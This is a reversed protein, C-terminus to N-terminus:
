ASETKADDKLIEDRREQMETTPDDGDFDIMDGSKLWENLYGMANFLLGCVAAIGANNMEPTRNDSQHYGLWELYHRFSSEVYSEMPFGKKWNDADRINGDSQLRNMNMYKAYQKLATLSLFGAYNLKGDATDRTAGSEFTRMNGDDEKPKGYLEDDLVDLKDGPSLRVDVGQKMLIIESPKLMAVKLDQDIMTKIQKQLAEVKDCENCDPFISMRKQMGTAERCETGTIYEKDVKISDPWPRAEHDHDYAGDSDDERNWEKKATSGQTKPNLSLEDAVMDDTLMQQCEQMTECDICKDYRSDNMCFGIGNIFGVMSNIAKGEAVLKEAVADGNFPKFESGRRCKDM